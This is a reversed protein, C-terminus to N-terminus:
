HNTYKQKHPLEPKLELSLARSATLHFFETSNERELATLLQQFMGQEWSELEEWNLSNVISTHLLLRDKLM